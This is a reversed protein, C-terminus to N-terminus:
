QAQGNPRRNLEGLAHNIVVPLVKVINLLDKSTLGHLDSVTLDNLRKVASKISPKVIIHVM